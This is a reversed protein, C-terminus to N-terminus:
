GVNKYLDTMYSKLIIIFLPYLCYKGSLGWVVVLLSVGLYITQSEENANDKCGDQGNEM